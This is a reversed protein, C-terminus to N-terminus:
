KVQKILFVQPVHLFGLCSENQVLSGDWYVQFKFDKKGVYLHYIITNQWVFCQVLNIHNDWKDTGFCLTVGLMRLINNCRLQITQTTKNKLTM